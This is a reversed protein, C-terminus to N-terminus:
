LTILSIGEGPLFFQDVGLDGDKADLSDFRLGYLDIPVIFGQRLSANPPLTRCLDDGM